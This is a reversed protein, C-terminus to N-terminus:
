RPTKPASTEAHARDGHVARRADVGAIIASVYDTHRAAVCLGVVDLLLEDVRTACPTRCSSRRAAHGAVSRRPAGRRFACPQERHMTTMARAQRGSGAAADRLQRSTDDLSKTFEAGTESATRSSTTRSTSAGPRRACLRAFFDEWYAVVDPAIGPPAVVGRMQPVLAVDYGAEKLTPM